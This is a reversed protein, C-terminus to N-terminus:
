MIPQIANTMMPAMTANKQTPFRLVAFPCARKWAVSTSCANAQDDISKSDQVNFIRCGHVEARADLEREALRQNVASPPQRVIPHSM